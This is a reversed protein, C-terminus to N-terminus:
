VGLLSELREILNRRQSVTEEHRAAAQAVDAHCHPCTTEQSYIYQNCARCLALKSPIRGVSPSSRTQVPMRLQVLSGPPPEVPEKEDPRPCEQPVVDAERGPIPELILDFEGIAFPSDPAERKKAVRERLGRLGLQLVRYHCYPNNGPKGFLSDATWTCGARCVDAFTAAPM